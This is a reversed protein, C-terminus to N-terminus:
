FALDLSCAALTADMFSHATGAYDCAVPFGCRAVIAYDVFLYTSLRAGARRPPSLPVFYCHASTVRCLGDLLFTVSHFGTVRSLGDILFTVLAKHPMADTAIATAVTAQM